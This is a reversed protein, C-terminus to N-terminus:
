RWGIRYLRFQPIAKINSFIVNKCFHVAQTSCLFTCGLIDFRFQCLNAFYFFCVNSSRKARNLINKTNKQLLVCNNHTKIFFLISKNYFCLNIFIRPFIIQSINPPIMVLMSYTIDLRSRIIVMIPIGKPRCVSFSANSANHGNPLLTMSVPLEPPQKVTIIFIKHITQPPKQM